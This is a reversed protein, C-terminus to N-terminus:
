IVFPYYDIKGYSFTLKVPMQGAHIKVGDIIYRNKITMTEYRSRFAKQM